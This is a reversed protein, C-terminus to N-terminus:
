QTGKQNFPIEAPEAKIGKHCDEVRQEGSVVVVETGKEQVTKLFEYLDRNSYNFTSDNGDELFELPLKNGKSSDEFHHETIVVM